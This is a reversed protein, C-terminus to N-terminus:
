AAKAVARPDFYPKDGLVTARHMVRRHPLYDNVAFHQTNRNDWFAVSGPKWRWRLIFQPQQIHEHLLKLIAASEKRSLAKIHTTFGYNVFLGRKGTEPHTRVVPHTVPPHKRRAEEYRTEGANLSVQRDPPFSRTFDHVAELTSLYERFSPSLAEYAATMSSWMTDGGWPPLERAHLISAMPPTEIFTVDTHWNDNDTPNDAHNDLVIVEPTGDVQPYVPHIHLAGFRAAFDRHQRPTLTQNEFFLVEHKLLARRIEAIAAADLDSALNVGHVVAGIAPTLPEVAAAGVTVHESM